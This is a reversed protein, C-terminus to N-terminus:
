TIIGERFLATRCNKVAHFIRSKVTGLPLQTIQAIEEYSNGGYYRLILIDRHNEALSAVARAIQRDREQQLVEDLPSSAPDTPNIGDLGRLRSKRKKEKLALRYAITTLYSRFSGSRHKIRRRLLRVYTEQTLDQAAAISGTILLTMKLLRQYHKQVLQRWASEDGHRAKEFLDWDSSM